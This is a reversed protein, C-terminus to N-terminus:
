PVKVICSQGTAAAAWGLGHLMAAPDTVSAIDPLHSVGYVSGM